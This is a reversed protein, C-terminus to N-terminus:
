RADQTKGGEQVGRSDFLAEGRDEIALVQGSPFPHWPHPRNFVTGDGGLLRGDIVPNEPSATLRGVKLETQGETVVAAIGSNLYARDLELGELGAAILHLDGRLGLHAQPVM